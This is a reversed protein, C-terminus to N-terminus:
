PATSVSTFEGVNPCTTETRPIREVCSLRRKRNEIIVLRCAAPPLRTAVIAGTHSSEITPGRTVEVVTPNTM